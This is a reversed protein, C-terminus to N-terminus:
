DQPVFRSRLLQVDQPLIYQPDTFCQSCMLRQAHDGYSGADAVYKAPVLLSAALSSILSSARRIAALTAFSGSSGGSRGNSFLRTSATVFQSNTMFQRADEMPQQILPFTIGTV